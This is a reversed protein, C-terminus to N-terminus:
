GKVFEQRMVQPLSRTAERLTLGAVRHRRLFGCTWEPHRKAVERLVWGIAKRIFFEREDVMKAALTEFFAFDGAGVKLRDLQALLSARRVWFDEDESWAELIAGEQSSGAVLPGIVKISLWDVLAWTRSDRLLPEIWALDSVELRKPYLELLAIALSRLEHVRTGWLSSALAELEARTLDGHAKRYDRAVQRIAPVGAGLFTLDSKLYAREHEARAPSATAELARRLADVDNM